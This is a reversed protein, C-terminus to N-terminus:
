SYADHQVDDHVKLIPPIAEWGPIVRVDHIGEQGAGRVSAFTLGEYVESWGGTSCLIQGQYAVSTEILLPLFDVQGVQTNNKISLMLISLPGTSFEEEEKKGQAFLVTAIQISEQLLWVSLRRQTTVALAGAQLSRPRTSPGGEGGPLRCPPITRRILCGRRCCCSRPPPTPRHLPWLPLPYRRRPGFSSTAPGPSMRSTYLSQHLPASITSKRDSEPVAGHLSAKLCRLLGARLPAHVPRLCPLPLSSAPSGDQNVRRRRHKAASPDDHDDYVDEDEQIGCWKDLLLGRRAAGMAM